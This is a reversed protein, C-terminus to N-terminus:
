WESRPGKTVTPAQARARRLTYVCAFLSCHGSCAHATRELHKASDGPGFHRIYLYLSEDKCNPNVIYNTNNATFSVQLSPLLFPGVSLKLTIIKCVILWVWKTPLSPNPGLLSSIVYMITVTCELSMWPCSCHICAVLVVTSKYDYHTCICNEVLSFGDRFNIQTNHGM